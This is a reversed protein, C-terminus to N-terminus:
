EANKEGLMHNILELGKKDYIERESPRLTRWILMQKRIVDIFTKNSKVWIDQVGSKREIKLTINYKADFSLAEITFDQYIGLDYPAIHITSSLRMIDRSDIREKMFKVKEVTFLGAQETSYHKLYEQLFALLSLSEVETVVFPLSVEWLDGKPPPIKWRRELSPIEIKSAIYAPYLGSLISVALAISVIMLVFASSYNLYFGTPYLNLHSFIYAVSIGLEYSVVGSIIGYVSSEALFLGMIHSPSLGVANYVKIERIREHIQAIMMNLITLAGITLPLLLNAIGTATFWQFPRILIVEGERGSYYIRLPARLILQDVLNCIITNPDSEMRPKIVISIPDAHQPHLMEFLRYPIIIIDDGDLHPPLVTMAGVAQQQVPTVPEQDLDLIGESGSWLSDGDFIGIITLNLGWLSIQSGIEINRELERKLMDVFRSSVICVFVDEDTFWRSGSTLIKNINLVESEKPSLALVASISVIQKPGFFIRSDTGVPPPPPYIWGRPIVDCIDELQSKIQHYFFEPIPGWPFRRLLIGQYMAEESIREKLPSPALSISTFTILSSVITALSILTLICRFRRKKMYRVGILLSQSIVSGRSVEVFHYGGLRRRLEKAATIFESLVIGLILLVLIAVGVSIFLIPVSTALHFGPHFAILIGLTLIFLLVILLIRKFGTKESVLLEEVLLSFPALLTFFFVMSSIVSHLHDMTYHYSLMGYAWAAYSDGFLRDIRGSSIDARVQEIFKESLNYYVVIQPNVANLRSLKEYRQSNITFIEEAAKSPSFGLILCDGPAVLFGSGSPNDLTANVLVGGPFGRGISLLVEVPTYPEVFFIFDYGSQIYSQRHMMGHSLFNNIAVSAFPNLEVPNMLNLLAISGCRFVSIPRIVFASSMRVIKGGEYSYVGLDTAWEINGNTSNIVFADIINVSFPKLGIITAEGHEDALVTTELVGATGSTVSVSSVSIQVESTTTVSTVKILVQKTKEPHRINDFPDYYNTTVNYTSVRVKLTAYGWDSQLRAPSLFLSPLTAENALGWLTSFIFQAQPWVNNFNVREYADFMTRFYKRVANVTHYTFGGGFCAAVFPDSDFLRSSATQLDYPPNNMIYVPYSNTIGDVFNAGYRAGLVRRMQGLYAVFFKNILAGYKLNFNQLNFFTYSSGISFVGIQDTDSSLDMGIFVKIKSGIESFHREVFERAGWLGQHHGSLAVLVVSRLPRNESLFRAFDLLISIGLAESAGPSLRPVVSWSDYYASVVIQEDLQSGRIIGVINPVQINRWSMSSNVYIHLENNKLCLDKLIKGKEYPLYLMPIPLPLNLLKKEAETRMITTEPNPPGIFIIGKAGYDIAKKFYWRSNFEMLVFKGDLNKGIFDKDEGSGLYVLLDGEKPSIYPAPNVGYSPWFKYAEIVSGNSLTISSGHDIPISINYYEFYGGDKGYPEVGYKNFRDVIYKAAEFFGPYGTVRSGLNSFFKVHQEVNNKDIEFAVWGVDLPEIAKTLNMLNAFSSILIIFSLYFINLCKKGRKLAM